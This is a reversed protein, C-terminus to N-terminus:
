LYKAYKHITLSFVTNREALASFYTLDRPSEDLSDSAFQIREIIFPPPKFLLSALFNPSIPSLAGANQPGRRDVDDWISPNQQWISLLTSFM